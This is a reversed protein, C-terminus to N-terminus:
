IESITVISYDRIIWFYVDYDEDHIVSKVDTQFDLM